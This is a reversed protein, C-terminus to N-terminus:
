FHTISYSSMWFYQSYTGLYLTNHDKNRATFDQHTSSICYWYVINWLVPCHRLVCHEMICSLTEICLIGYYLVSIDWYVINWLVPCHRLVCHEMICSLTEICLLKWLVPCKHRLVCHEMICFLPEICLTGYYLVIDWCWPLYNCVHGWDSCSCM